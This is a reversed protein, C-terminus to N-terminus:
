NKTKKLIDKHNGQYHLRGITVTWEKSCKPCLNCSPHKPKGCRLCPKNKEKM